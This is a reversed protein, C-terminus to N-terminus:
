TAFRFRALRTEALRGLAACAEVLGWYALALVTFGEVFAYHRTGIASVTLTLEPVSIISLIATEKLMLITMNVMSPLVLLTMEPLVIRRLTQARSLGVCDAAEAHGQPVAEIGTRWLESYYAAGYITLALVGAPLPDLSIGIFPGGYYLLFVQVLFPTGRITEVCALLALDVPRPGYRRALAVVFGLMAGLAAGALWLLATVGLARLIEPLYGAVLGFDFSV